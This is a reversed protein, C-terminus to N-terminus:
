FLQVLTEVWGCVDDVCKRKRPLDRIVMDYWQNFADGTVVHGQPGGTYRLRGWPTIFTTVHRDRPDLPVSHYGNWADSTFCFTGPPVARAQSYPPEVYHTMRKSAANVPRLDVTRRPEGSKKAVVHMRSCWTVPTNQPVRELVGLEIDREIDACVQEQWHAPITSPRYVAVPVADEKLLIRM